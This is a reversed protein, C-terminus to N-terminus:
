NKPLLELPNVPKGNKRIEFHLLPPKNGIVGIEAIPQGQEVYQGESVLVRANNTYASLYTKDHQIILTQGFGVLGAGSHVVVGAETASVIQGTTGALDIGKNEPPSFTGILEGELPYRFNLKLMNQKDISIISKEPKLSAANGTIKAPEPPTEFLQLPQGLWISFSRPIHNWKALLKYDIGTKRGISFLTDGAMVTYYKKSNDEVSKPPPMPEPPLQASLPPAIPSVPASLEVTPKDAFYAQYSSCATLSLLSLMLFVRSFLSLGNM